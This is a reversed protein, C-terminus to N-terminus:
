GGVLAAVDVLMGVAADEFSALSDGKWMFGQPTSVEVHDGHCSIAISRDITVEEGRRNFVFRGDHPHRPLTEVWMWYDYARPCFQVHQLTNCLVRHIEYALRGQDPKRQALKAKVRSILSMTM